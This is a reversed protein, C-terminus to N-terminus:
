RARENNLESIFETELENLGQISEQTRSPNIGNQQIFIRTNDLRSLYEAPNDLIHKRQKARESNIAEVFNPYKDSGLSYVLEPKNINAGRIFVNLKDYLNLSELHQITAVFNNYMRDYSKKAIGRPSDGIELMIKEREFCSLRSLFMDTAMINIVIEYDSNKFSEVFEIDKEGKDFTNENLINLRNKRLEGFIKPAAPRVFQRTINYCDEPSETELIEEYKPHFEAIKDSNVSVISEGIQRFAHKLYAEVGSKGSGPGGVIFQIQPNKSSVASGYIYTLFRNINTNIDLVTLDYKGM